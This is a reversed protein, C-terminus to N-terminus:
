FSGNRVPFINPLLSISAANNFAISFAPHV